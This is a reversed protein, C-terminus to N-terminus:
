ILVSEICSSELWIYCTLGQKLKNEIEDTALNEHQRESRESHDEMKAMLGPLTHNFFFALETNFIQM